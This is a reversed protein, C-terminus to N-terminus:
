VLINLARTSDEQVNHKIAHHQTGTLLSSQHASDKANPGPGAVEPEQGASHAVLLDLWCNHLVVCVCVCFWFESGYVRFM